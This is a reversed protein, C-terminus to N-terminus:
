RRLKLSGILATYRTHDERQLYNLLKRRKNVMAILGRRSSNDKKHIKMHETLETIRQTLIAVQVEVSGVDNESRQYKKIIELKEEKNM